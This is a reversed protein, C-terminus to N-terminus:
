PRLLVDFGVTVNPNVRMTGMMLSPPRLGYDTMVLAKTGRVRLKGDEESVTANMTVPQTQGGITLEGSLRAAAGEASSAVSITTARFSITPAQAAKLANRMHGNMTNNRCDLTAVPITIRAGTVEGLSSLNASGAEATGEVQTSECRYSRATSTGTVWVRSGPQVSLPLIAAALAAPALIALGGLWFRRRM